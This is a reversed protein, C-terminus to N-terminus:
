YIKTFNPWKADRYKVVSKIHLITASKLRMSHVGIGSSLYKGHVRSCLLTCFHLQLLQVIVLCCKTMAYYLFIVFLSIELAITSSIFLICKNGCNAKSTCWPSWSGSTTLKPILFLKGRWKIWSKFWVKRLFNILLQSLKM